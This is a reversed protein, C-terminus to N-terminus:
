KKVNDRDSPKAMAQFRFYDLGIAKGDVSKFAIKHDLRKMLRIEGVKVEGGPGFNPASMDIVDGVRRGDVLAQLKGYQEGQAFQAYLEYKGSEGVPFPFNIFQEAATPRWDLFQLRSWKADQDQSQIVEATTGAGMLVGDINECEFAGGVSHFNAVPMPLPWRKEFPADVDFSTTSGVPAYWWAFATYDTALGDALQVGPEFVLHKDSTPADLGFLRLASRHGFSGPGERLTLQEFAMPTPNRWSNLFQFAGRFKQAAATPAASSFTYGLLRAQSPIDLKALGPIGTASSRVWGAHLRLPPVEEASSYKNVGWRTKLITVARIDSSLSIKLGGTFPVPMRFYFVGTAENFGVLHSQFPNMGPTTGLFDGLPLEFIVDGVIVSKETNLELRLTVHRLMERMEEPPLKEHFEIEFWRLVGNGVIPVRFDGYYYDAGEETRPEHFRFGGKWSIPAEGLTEPNTNDRFLQAAYRLPRLNAKLTEATLSELKVGEGFRRVALDGGIGVGVPGSFDVRMSEQFPMPIKCVFGDGVKMFLPASLHGPLRKDFLAKLEWDIAPQSSDDVFVRVTGVADSV